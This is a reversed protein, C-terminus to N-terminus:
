QYPREPAGSPPSADRRRCRLIRLPTPPPTTTNNGSTSGPSRHRPHSRPRTSHGDGSESPGRRVGTISHLSARARGERPAPGVPPQQQLGAPEPTSSATWTNVRVLRNTQDEYDVLPVAAPNTAAIALAGGNRLQAGRPAPHTQATVPVREEEQWAGRPTLQQLGGTWFAPGRTGARMRSPITM